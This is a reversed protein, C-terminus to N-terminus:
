TSLICQVHIIAQMCRIYSTYKVIIDQFAIFILVSNRTDDLRPSNNDRVLNTYSITLWAFITFDCCCYSEGVEGSEWSRIYQALKGSFKQFVCRVRNSSEFVWTDRWGRKEQCWRQRNLEITITLWSKMYIYIYWASILPAVCSSNEAAHRSHM